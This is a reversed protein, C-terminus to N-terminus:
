TGQGPEQTVNTRASVAFSNRGPTCIVGDRHKRFDKCQASALQPATYQLRDQRHTPPDIVVIIRFQADIRVLSSKYTFTTVM